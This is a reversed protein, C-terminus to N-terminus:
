DPPPQPTEPIEVGAAYLVDRRQLVFGLKEAVRVSGTNDPSTTWSPRRGRSWIDRCVERACAPSLGLGRFRAETVVGIDEYSQGQFFPCAVSGLEGDVFAGWATGSACLGEPGGWTKGIWAVDESLGHVLASDAPELRRIVIRSDAPPESAVPPQPQEYVVRQWRKLGPFAAELLPAFSEPAEVFGQLHPRVDDASIASADGALSYNGGTEVLVVRPGPWRDVVSSGNGTQMIHAAILPGPREPVFWPRLTTLQEPTIPIM